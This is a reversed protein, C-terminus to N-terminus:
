SKCGQLHHEIADLVYRPTNNMVEVSQDINYTKYMISSAMENKILITTLPYKLEIESTM